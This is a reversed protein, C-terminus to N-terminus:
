ADSDSDLIYNDLYKPKSRHRNSRRLTREPPEQNPMHAGIAEGEQIHRHVGEPPEQIPRHAGIHEEEGREHNNPRQARVDDNHNGNPRHAGIYEEVGHGQNNPRQARVDDNHNGNPRHAGIYDEEGREQNSPWQASVNDGDDRPNGNPRHAGIYEEVGHGQDNPRQARVGDNHNGNPRHAGIYDEEDHEQNNPRQARVNNGQSLEATNVPDTGGTFNFNETAKKLHNFHVVKRLRRTRGKNEGVFQIRYTTDSIVKVVKWPGSWRKFFKKSTGKPIASKYLWVLDNLQFPAGHIRSDYHHKQYLQSAMLHDRALKETAQIGRRQELVFEPYNKKEGTPPDGIVADVPLRMERGFMLRYPTFKTSTHVSSRYHMLAKQLLEDWRDTNEEVMCKLMHVLTKNMRETEGNSWPTFPTTRTKAMEVMSCLSRFINSEFNSGQDSHLSTPVGFLCVIEDMLVNAVTTASTEKLPYAFPFKTFYDVAVVIYANGNVTKPLPGVIDIGIRELPYGSKIPMMEAKRPKTPEKVQQCTQCKQIYLEIENRQGFWHFRERVKDVTKSIGMHGSCDHLSYLVTATLNKPLWLQLRECDEDYWVRYLVGNEDRLRDFQSWMSWLERDGGQIESKDPRKRGALWKLVKRINSETQQAMKIENLTFGALPGLSWNDYWKTAEKSECTAANVKITDSYDTIYIEEEQLSPQKWPIRSLGDANGHLRGLRHEIDFPMFEMIRELWRTIPGRPHRSTKLWSLAENDTRVLFKQGYIYPEFQELAWALALMEKMYVTYSNKQAGQLAKAAFAIPREVGGQVQYLAAGIGVDSADTDIVFPLHYKPFALVPAEILQKKVLEFAEQAECSWEFKSNKKDLKRLPATVDAYNLIFKQHYGVHGLFSKLEQLNSPAPWDKIVRVKEPDVAIGEKSVVHGLLVLREPLLKCKTPKIKLGAAAFRSLFKDLKERHSELSDAFIVIDDLYVLLDTWTLGKLIVDMARQFTAPANTLGFSMKKFQFHGDTTSFATKERDEEEVEFQWYGKVLDFHSFYCAGSISELIDDPRPLPYCDKKTVDNLARYDVCFRRGGDKKHVLVVPASWPSQSEEIIDNELMAKIESHVIDRKVPGMRRLPMKCPEAQGTDIKHKVINVTGLDHPGWSIVNPYKMLTDYHLKRETEPIDPNEIPFEQEIKARLNISSDGTNINNVNKQLPCSAQVFYCHAPAKINQDSESNLLPFLQGVSSGKWVHISDNSQNIVRVPVEGNTVTAAVRVLGLKYKEEFRQLPEVIGTTGEKSLGGYVKCNINMVTNPPVDANEKFVIRCVEFSEKHNLNVNQGGFLLKDRAFDIVVGQNRLFDEGLLMMTTINECVFMPWIFCTEGILLQCDSVGLVKIQAGVCPGNVSVSTPKLVPKPNMADYVSKSLLTVQAGTDVLADVPVGGVMCNVYSAKGGQNHTEHDIKARPSSNKYSRELEEGWARKGFQKPLGEM